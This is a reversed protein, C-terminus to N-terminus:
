RPIDQSVDFEEVTEETLAVKFGPTMEHYFLITDVVDVGATEIVVSDTMGMRAAIFESLHRAEDYGLSIKM